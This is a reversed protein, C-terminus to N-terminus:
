IPLKLKVRSWLNKIVLTLKKAPFTNMKEKDKDSVANFLKMLLNASQMDIITGGVKMATKSKVIHQIKRMNGAPEVAEKVFSKGHGTFVKGLKMGQPLEISENVSENQGRKWSKMLTYFKGVNRTFNTLFIKEDTKDGTLKTNAKGLKVVTKFFDGYDKEFTNWERNTSRAENVSENALQLADKVKKDNSLGKKIKEIKKTAGTMNGSMEIAILIAKKQYSSLKRENVSEVPEYGRKQKDKRKQIGGDVEYDDDDFDYTAHEAGKGTIHPGNHYKHHKYFEKGRKSNKPPKVGKVKKVDKVKTPLSGELIKRQEEMMKYIYLKDLGHLISEGGKQVQRYGSSSGAQKSGPEPTAPIGGSESGEPPTTPKVLVNPTTTIFNASERPITYNPSKGFARRGYVRQKPALPPTDDRLENPNIVENSKMYEPTIKTRKFTGGALDPQPIESGDGGYISDAAPAVVQVMGRPMGAAAIYRREGYKTFLGDPWADGTNLGGGYTTTSSEYLQKEIKNSFKM